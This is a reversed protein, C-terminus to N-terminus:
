CSELFGLLFCDLFLGMRAVLEFGEFLGDILVIGKTVLDSEDGGRGGVGLAFGEFKM